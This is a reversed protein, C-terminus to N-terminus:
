DLLLFVIGLPLCTLTLFINRLIIKIVGPKNNDNDTLTLKIIKM